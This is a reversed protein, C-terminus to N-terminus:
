GHAGNHARFVIGIKLNGVRGIRAATHHDIGGIQVGHGRLRCAVFDDGSKFGVALAFSADIESQAIPANRPLAIPTARDRNDMALSAPGHRYRARGQRDGQGLIDAEVSGAIREVVVRCPLM